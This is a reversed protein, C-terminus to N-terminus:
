GTGQPDETILHNTTRSLAVPNTNPSSRIVCSSAMEKKSSRFFILYGTNYFTYVFTKPTFSDSHTRIFPEPHLCSDTVSLVLFNWSILLFMKLIVRRFGVYCQYLFDSSQRNKIDFIIWSCQSANKPSRPDVFVISSPLSNRRSTILPLFSLDM